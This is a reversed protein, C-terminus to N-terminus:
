LWSLPGGHRDNFYDDGDDESDYEDDDVEDDDDGDPRWEDDHAQPPTGLGRIAEEHKASFPGFSSVFALTLDYELKELAAGRQVPAGLGFIGAALAATSPEADTVSEHWWDLVETGLSLCVLSGATLWRSRPEELGPCDLLVTAADGPHTGTPTADCLDCDSIDISVGDGRAGSLDQRVDAFLQWRGGLVAILVNSYCDGRAPRDLIWTQLWRKSPRVM